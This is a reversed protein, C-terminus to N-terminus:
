GKAGGDCAIPRADSIWDLGVRGRRVDIRVCSGVKAFRERAKTVRLEAKWNSSLERLKFSQIPTVAPPIHTIEVATVVMNHRQVERIGYANFWVLLVLPWIALMMGATALWVVKVANRLTLSLRDVGSLRGAMIVVFLSAGGVMIWHGSVFDTQIGGPVYSLPIFTVSSAVAIAFAVVLAWGLGRLVCLVLDRSRRAM